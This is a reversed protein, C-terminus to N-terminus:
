EPTDLGQEPGNEEAHATEGNLTQVIALVIACAALDWRQCEVALRLLKM